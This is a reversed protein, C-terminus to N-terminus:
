DHNAGKANQATARIDQQIAGNDVYNETVTKSTEYHRLLKEVSPSIDKMVLGPAVGFIIVMIALPVLFLLILVAVAPALAARRISSAFM